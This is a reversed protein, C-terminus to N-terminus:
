VMSNREYGNRVRNCIFHDMIGKVKWNNDISNIINPEIAEFGKLLVPIALPTQRTMIDYSVPVQRKKLATTYKLLCFM